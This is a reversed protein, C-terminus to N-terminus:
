FNQVPCSRVMGWGSPIKGLPSDQFSDPFLAATEASMRCLQRGEAKGRVPDFDVFWSEFIARAMAELTENMRRNLEIKDDLAGLIGGIARQESLPPVKLRISRIYNRNLSPQASGSDYRKFDISKLFYYAFRVDNGHFDTVFLTTNLPWFDKASFVVVGFSGGSRGVTLGPGKVRAVNHYGTIGFSGLIPVTGETRRKDPLDYGRQLSVFAELPVEAWRERVM